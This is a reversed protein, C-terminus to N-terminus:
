SESRLNCVCVQANKPLIVNPAQNTTPRRCRGCVMFTGTFGHTMRTKGDGGPDRLVALAKELSQRDRKNM